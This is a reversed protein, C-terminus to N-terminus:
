LYTLHQKWPLMENTIPGGSIKNFLFHALHSVVKPSRIVKAVMKKCVSVSSSECLWVAYIELMFENDHGAREMMKNPMKKKSRRDGDAIRTLDSCVALDQRLARLGPM